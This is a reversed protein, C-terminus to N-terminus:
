LLLTGVLAFLTAAASVYLAGFGLSAAGSDDDDGSASASGTSTSSGMAVSATATGSDTDFHSGKGDIGPGKGAGDKMYKEAESPMEPLYSPDVQWVSESTPCAVGHSTKAAGGTGTPMPYKSLASKFLDFEKETSVKGNKITVIGYDNDELSYEYMLGGSYVSSMQSDMMPELEEFKRPRNEICGYESLFIPIGYNTFNKVKVDWGSTKFDSNCWSYDNFAFFDSRVEESGCNMYHATQMRNSAVDAASYGVPVQRLKRAKLYNRMDRTIAKVYPASKDTDKEDNMVENGSFFALTNDYKAFMEVTAFVSQIYAANYSPGPKARNISYKPNNVDLVLYIGAADLASMCEDHDAKNDVAYVRVVNVGLEKFYKIDRKCVDPDALPDENASAGGPQYDIGRLYFRDNGSWFANGSVSVAPLSARKSPPEKLTPTASAVAALASLFAVTKM